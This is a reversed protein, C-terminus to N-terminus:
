RVVNSVPAPGLIRFLTYGVGADEVQMPSLNRSRGYSEQMAALLASRDRQGPLAHALQEETLDSYSIGSKAEICQAVLADDLTLLPEPQGPGVIKVILYPYQSEPTNVTEKFNFRSYLFGPTPDINEFEAPQMRVIDTVKLDSIVTDRDFSKVEGGVLFQVIRKPKEKNGHSESASPVKEVM